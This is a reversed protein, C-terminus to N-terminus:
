QIRKFKKELEYKTMEIITPRGHPCSFPNELGLMREILEKAESFGLRDNGKVAAKCSMTAVADLKTQYPTSVPQKQLEDIIEMFFGAGQPEHLIYPVARLAYANAGFPELEFGFSELLERNEEIVAAEAPTINLALPQLLLQSVPKEDDNLRSVLEEYLAREHAAHQDIMYMSNGQEIIWYTNFLQGIIKYNNFFRKKDDIKDLFDQQVPKEASPEFVPKEEMKDATQATVAATQEKQETIPEDEPKENKEAKIGGQMIRDYAESMKQSVGMKEDRTSPEAFVLVDKNEEAPKEVSTRETVTEPEVPTKVANEATKEVATEIGKESDKAPSEEKDSATKDIEAPKLFDVNKNKPADWEVKPILVEKKLANFVAGYILDYILNEDSFRAELKAPHVNVDVTNPPVTLDLMFVPFKGVMVRGKYADEVAQAVLPSKIYRGNIFFIEYSRNGRNIEPKGILGKIRFGDKQVDVPILSAAMDSGYIYLVATKLEGGGNTQFVASGNNIFKIAIEPHGLAIKYVADSIYGSETAPKKLFKRRAPTNFFLNRVTFVTGVQAACSQKDTIKGGELSIRTGAEDESTMTVVEVQAVSAISSLAEGRFGLTLINGLDDFTNLKSTAHRLFATEIEDRPIGRGNDTIRILSIGGNQVEITVNKAGADISNEVLEKVVSAPREVVEGAAIKNILNSDLVHIKAM